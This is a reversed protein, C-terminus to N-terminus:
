EEKAVGNLVRRLVALSGVLKDTIPGDARMPYGENYGIRAAACGMDANFFASEVEKRTIDSEIFKGQKTMRMYKECLELESKAEQYYAEYRFYSRESISDTTELFKTTRESLNRYIEVKRLMCHSKSLREPFVEGFTDKAYARGDVDNDFRAANACVATLQFALLLCLKRM